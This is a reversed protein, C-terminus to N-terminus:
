IVMSNFKIDKTNLLIGRPLTEMIMQAYETINITEKM